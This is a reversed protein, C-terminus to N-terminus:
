RWREPLLRPLVFSLGLLVVGWFMPELWDAAGGVATAGAQGLKVYAISQPAMGLFSGLAYSATRIRTLGFAYNTLAHPVLPKRRRFFDSILGSFVKAVMATAEAIGEVIGITLTSAGLGVAMYLPLLSHILESSLDM